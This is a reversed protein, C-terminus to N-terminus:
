NNHILVQTVGPEKMLLQKIRTEDSSAKLGELMVIGDSVQVELKENSITKEATMRAVIRSKLCLDELAKRSAATPRFHEKSAASCVLECAGALSTHELNIVMDYLSPDLLDTHFLFQTWKARAEDAQKIFKIAHSRDLGKDSMAANIRFEMDAILRVRFVHPVDKLLFHGANGHYVVKEDLIHDCLTAGIYALAHLRYKQSHEFMRPKDKITHELEQLNVGYEQSAEKLIEEAICRYGLKDAICEALAKGGSYTGRSVTIIAM